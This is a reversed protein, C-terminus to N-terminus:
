LLQWCAAECLCSALLHCGLLATHLLELPLFIKRWHLMKYYHLAINIVCHLVSFGNNELSCMICILSDMLRTYTQSDKAWGTKLWDDAPYENLNYAIATATGSSSNKKNDTALFFCRPLISQTKSAFYNLLSRGRVM